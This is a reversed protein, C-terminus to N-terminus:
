RWCQCLLGEPTLISISQAAAVPRLYALICLQPSLCPLSYWVCRTLSFRSLGLSPSGGHLRPEQRPSSRTSDFVVAFFLVSSSSSFILVLRPESIQSSTAHRPRFSASSATTSTTACSVGAFTCTSPAARSADMSLCRSPALTTKLSRRRALSSSAWSRQSSSLSSLLLLQNGHFPQVTAACCMAYRAAARLSTTPGAQMPSASSSVVSFCSSQRQAHM